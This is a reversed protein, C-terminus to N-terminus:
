GGIRLADGVEASRAPAPTGPRRADWWAGAAACGAGLLAGGLVDTPWHANLIVRAFGVAAVLIVALVLFVRRTTPSVRERSLIYILIVAFTAAATVHGSPFGWNVGRPRPRGVLFKFLQEIAGGALMLTCWLWWHRRAARSWVLLLLLAPALFLGKGGYDVWRAIAHLWTGRGKLIERHLPVDGPLLGVTYVVVSMGVFAGLLVLALTRWRAVTSASADMATSM